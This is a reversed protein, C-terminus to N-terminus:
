KMPVNYLDVFSGLDEIGVDSGDGNSGNNPIFRIDFIGTRWVGSKLNNLAPYQAYILRNQKVAIDNATIRYKIYVRMCYDTDKYMTSPEDAIISSEIIVHNKKIYPIYYKNIMDEMNLNSRAYTAALGKVWANDVTRYDVNFVYNLYNEVLASWEYLHKDMEQSLPWEDYWNKFMETRMEVPYAYYDPNRKEKWNEMRMFEFQREYFKNPYCELIYEYKDAHKPLNTTRILMGDPSIKARKSPSKVLSIVAKATSTTVYESGKFSRNQIYYGNSYGKIIGKAFVKAVAERKGPAVKKIDSIRKELVFSLLKNDIKDGNLYEDARNALVALDTRTLYATYKDFDDEKIIGAVKAAEIYPERSSSDTPLNLETVILKVFTNVKIFGAAEVTQAPISLALMMTLALLLGIRKKGNIVEKMIRVGKM